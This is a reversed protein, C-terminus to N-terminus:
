KPLRKFLFNTPLQLFEAAEQKNRVTHVTKIFNYDSCIFEYLYLYHLDFDVGELKEINFRELNCYKLFDQTQKENIRYTKNNTFNVTFNEFKKKGNIFDKVNEEATEVFTGDSKKENTVSYIKGSSDFYIYWKQM